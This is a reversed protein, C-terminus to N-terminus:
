NTDTSYKESKNKEIKNRKHKKAEIATKPKQQGGSDPSFIVRSIVIKTIKLVKYTNHVNTLHKKFKFM